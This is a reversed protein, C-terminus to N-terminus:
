PAPIRMPTQGGGAAGGGIRIGTACKGDVWLVWAGTSYDKGIKGYISTANGCRGRLALLETCASSLIVFQNDSISGTSYPLPPDFELRSTNFTFMIGATGAPALLASVTAKSITFSPTIVSTTGSYKKLDRTVMVSGWDRSPAAPIHDITRPM